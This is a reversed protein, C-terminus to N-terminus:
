CVYLFLASLMTHCNLHQSIVLVKEERINM